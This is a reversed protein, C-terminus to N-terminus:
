RAGAKATGNAHAAGNAGAGNVHGNGNAEVDGNAHVAGNAQEADRERDEGVIGMAEDLAATLYEALVPAGEGNTITEHMLEKGIVQHLVVGGRALNDWPTPATSEETQPRFFDV